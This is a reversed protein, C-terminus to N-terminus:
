RNLTKMAKAILTALHPYGVLVIAEEALLWRADSIGESIRPQPTTMPATAVFYAVHKTRWRGKKQVPYSVRGLLPGVTCTINTEELVERQAADTETEGDEVHGKPLTWVDQRDRILLVFLQGEDDRGCVVCGAATIPM